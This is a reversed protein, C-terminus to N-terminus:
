RHTTFIVKDSPPSTVVVRRKAFWVGIGKYPQSYSSCAVGPEHFRGSGFAHEPLCYVDTVPFYAAEGVRIVKVAAGQSAFGTTASVAFCVVATAVCACITHLMPGEKL